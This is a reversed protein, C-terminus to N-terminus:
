KFIRQLDFRLDIKTSIKKDKEIKLPKIFIREREIDKERLFELINEARDNALKYLEEKAVKQRSILREKLSNIYEIKNRKNYQLDRLAKLGFERKFAEELLKKRKDESINTIFFAEKKLKKELKKEKMALMDLKENFSPTIEIIMKRKKKLILVLQKLKEIEPPTLEKEGAEFEIEKISNIDGLVYKVVKLPLTAISGIKKILTEAIVKSWNFNPNNLDGKVPLNLTIINNTKAVSIALPLPINKDILKKGLKIDKITFRNQMNLKSNEIKYKSYASVRGGKIDYGLYKISYGRFITLPINQIDIRMKMFEKMKKYDFNGKVNLYGNQNIKGKISLDSLLIEKSSINNIKADVDELNFEVVKPLSNDYYYAVLNKLNIKDIFFLYKRKKEEREERKKSKKFLKSFNFIGNKDKKIDLFPSLFIISNIYIRKKATNLNVRDILVKSSALLSFGKKDEISFDDITIDADNLYLNSNYKFKSYLSLKSNGIKFNVFKDLYPNFIKLNFRDINISGKLFLPEFLAYSEIEIKSNNLKTSIKIEARNKRNSYNKIYGNINELSYDVSNQNDRFNVEGERIKIRNINLSIKKREERKEKQSKLVKTLDIDRNPNIKVRNLLITSILLSNRYQNFNLNNIYIARSKLLERNKQYLSLNNFEIDTKYLSLYKKYKINANLSLYGRKLQFQSYRNILPTFKKLNLRNLKLNTALWNKSLNYSGKIKLYSNEVYGQLDFNLKQKKNSISSLYLKKIKSNLTFNKIDKDQFKILFNNISSEKINYYFNSSKNKKSSKKFLTTLNIKDQKKIIDIFGNSLNIKGITLHNSSFIVRKLDIKGIKIIDKKQSIKSNFLSINSNIYISKDYKILAEIRNKGIKLKSNLSKEFFPKFDDINLNKAKLYSNVKLSALNIDGKLYINKSKLWFKTLSNQNNLNKVRINSFLSLNLKKFKSNRYNFKVRNLSINKILYSWSSNSEKSTNSEKILNSFSNIDGNQFFNINSSQLKINDITISRNKTSLNINNIELNKLTLPKERERRFTARNLKVFSNEIFFNNEKVKFFINIDSSGNIDINLYDRFYPNLKGLDINKIFLHGNLAIKNLSLSNNIELYGKDAINLKLRNNFFEGATNFNEVRYNIKDIKLFFPKESSRDEILIKANKLIGEKLFFTFSSSTSNNDSKTTLKKYIDTINLGNKDRFIYLTPEEIKLKKISLKRNLLDVVKTDISLSKLSFLNKLKRDKIILNEIEIRFLFPNFSSKLSVVREELQKQIYNSIERNIIIPIYFFGVVGYLFLLIFITISLKKFKM